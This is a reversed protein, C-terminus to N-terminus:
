TQVCPSCILQSGNLCHWLQFWHNPHPHDIEDEQIIYYSIGSFRDVKRRAKKAKYTDTSFILPSLLLSHNTIQLTEELLSYEKNISAEPCNETGQHCLGCNCGSCYTRRAAMDLLETSVNWWPAANEIERAPPQSFLNIHAANQAKKVPM